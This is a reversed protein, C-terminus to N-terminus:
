RAPWNAAPCVLRQTTTLCRSLSAATVKCRAHNATAISATAAVTAAHPLWGALPARRVAAAGEASGGETIGDATGDEGPADDGAGDALVTTCREAPNEGLM